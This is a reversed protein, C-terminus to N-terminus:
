SLEPEWNKLAAKPICDPVPLKSLDLNTKVKKILKPTVSINCLTLNTRSPFAPLFM